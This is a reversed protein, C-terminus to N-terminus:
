RTASLIAAPLDTFESSKDLFASAGARLSARRYAEDSYNTLVVVRLRPDRALAWAILEIGNRVEPTGPLGIDTVLVDPKAGVILAQAEACSSAEGVVALAREAALTAIIRKRVLIMDEVVLVRLPPAAARKPSAEVQDAVSIVSQSM